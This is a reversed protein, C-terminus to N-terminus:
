YRTPDPPSATRGHGLLDIAIIRFHPALVATLEEWNAASGTFGHLLILPRGNGQMTHCYKIDNVSM